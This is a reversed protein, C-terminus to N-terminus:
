PTPGVYKIDVDVSGFYDGKDFHRHSPSSGFARNEDVHCLGTTSTAGRSTWMYIGEDLADELLEVKWCYDETFSGQDVISIEGRNVWKVVGEVTKTLRIKQGAEIDNWNM